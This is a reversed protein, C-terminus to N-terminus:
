ECELGCDHDEKGRRNAGVRTGRGRGVPTTDGQEHDHEEELRADERGDEGKGDTTETTVGLATRRPDDCGDATTREERRQSTERGVVGAVMQGHTHRKGSEEDGEDERDIYTELLGSM